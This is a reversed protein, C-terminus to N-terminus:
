EKFRSYINVPFGTRARRLEIEDYSTTKYQGGRLGM